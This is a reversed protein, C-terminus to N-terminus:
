QRASFFTLLMMDRIRKASLCAALLTLSTGCALTILGALYGLSSPALARFACAVCLACLLPLAVDNVYWARKEKVLLRRHMFQVVVLLYIGNVLLWTFAAGIAGYRNTVFWILPILSVAMIINTKVLLSTWGAALQLYYPGHMLGNALMGITIIWMIPYTRNTLDPDRAWLDLFVKGFVALSIAVGGMLVVSLQTSKHYLDALQVTQDEEMFQVFKPYVAQDIPQAIVRVYSALTAALTYYGFDTLSLLRSLVIKDAQSLLTGFFAIAFAGLSFQWTGKLTSFSFRAPEPTKPLARYVLASLCISAITSVLAQWIFFSVISDSVFALVGVAGAGRVTAFISTAVNLEVQRQLGILSARYVNEVFKLAAVVGMLSCTRAVVDNPIHESRLWASALWDSSLWIVACTLAAICLVIVEISRLLERIRQAEYGPRTTRSTERSVAPTLGFDLLSLWVQLLTFVGILGYAEIGLYRIYAPLFAIGMLMSWATGLYNAIVNRRLM